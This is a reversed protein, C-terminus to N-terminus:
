WKKKPGFINDDQKDVANGDVPEDLDLSLSKHAAESPTLNVLEKLESELATLRSNKKKFKDLMQQGIQFNRQASVYNHEALSRQGQQIYACIKAESILLMIKNTAVPILESNMSRVTRFKLLYKGLRSLHQILLNLQHGDRPINLKQKDVPSVTSTLQQEVHNLHNSIALDAPALKKAAALNLKIYQLLVKRAEEGIPINAFNDLISNTENARFRYKAIQQRLLAKAQERKQIFTISGVSGVLVVFIVVITLFSNM